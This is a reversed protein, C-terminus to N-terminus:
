LYLRLKAYYDVAKAYYDVALIIRYGIYRQPGNSSIATKM